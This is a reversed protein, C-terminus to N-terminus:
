WSILNNDKFIFYDGTSRRTDLYDAFNINSYILLIGEGNESKYIIELDVTYKVYKFFYYLANFYLSGPNSVYRSLKGYTYILDPKIYNGAWGIGGIMFTYIAKYIETAERKYREIVTDPAM